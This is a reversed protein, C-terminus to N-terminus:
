GHHGFTEPLRLQRLSEIRQWQDLAQQELGPLDLRGPIDFSRPMGHLARWLCRKGQVGIQLSELTRFLALSGHDGGTVTQLVSGMAQGGARKMSFSSSGLQELIARLVARESEFESELRASLTGEPRGQHSRALRTVVALAADSGSLHDLLYSALNEDPDTHRPRRRQLTAALGLVVAAGALVAVHQQNFRTM